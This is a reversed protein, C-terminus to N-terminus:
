TTLPMHLVMWINLFPSLQFRCAGRPVPTSPTTNLAQYVLIILMNHKPFTERFSNSHKQIKDLNGGGGGGGRGGIQVVQVVKKSCWFCRNLRCEFHSM